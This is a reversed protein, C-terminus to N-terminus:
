RSVSNWFIQAATKIAGPNLRYACSIECHAMFGCDECSVDDVKNKLYCGHTIKGGQEVSSVLFDYCHWTNYAMNKLCVPSDLIKFGKDKLDILEGLLKEKQDGALSVDEVNKYPYFFQITIGFVRDNLFRIIESVENHNVRSICINAIIKKRRRYREINKIIRDFSRGRISDHTERLGDISIFFIDPDFKMLDLTGNTTVGVSFFYGKAYEIVDSLDKGEVSDRWLLPEGGEFIVIRVGDKYLGDIIKIAENFSLEDVSSNKWFPCHGCQLNCKGTIKFSCILPKRQGSYLRSKILYGTLYLVQAARSSRSTTWQIKQRM